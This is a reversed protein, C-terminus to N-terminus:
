SLTASITTPDAASFMQKGLQRGKIDSYITGTSTDTPQSSAFLLVFVIAIFMLGFSSQSNSRGRIMHFSGEENSSAASGRILDLDDLDRVPEVDPPAALDTRPTEVPAEMKAFLDEFYALQKKLLANQATLGANQECLEHTRDM